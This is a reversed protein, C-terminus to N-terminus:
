PLNFEDVLVDVINQDPHAKFRDRRNYLEMKLYHEFAKNSYKGLTKLIAMVERYTYRTRNAPHEERLRQLLEEWFLDFCAKHFPEEGHFEEVPPDMPENCYHCCVPENEDDFMYGDNPHSYDSFDVM